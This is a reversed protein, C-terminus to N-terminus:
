SGPCLVTYCSVFHGFDRFLAPVAPCPRGVAGTRRPVAQACTGYVARRRGDAFANRGVRSPRIRLTALKQYLNKGDTLVPWQIGSLVEQTTEPAREDMRCSPAVSRLARM